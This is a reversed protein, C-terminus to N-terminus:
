NSALLVFGPTSSVLRHQLGSQVIRVTFQTGDALEVQATCNRNATYSGDYTVPTALVGQSDATAELTVQGSGDFHVIGQSAYAASSAYLYKEPIAIVTGSGIVVTAPARFEYSGAYGQPSCDPSPVNAATLRVNLGLAFLLIALTLSFTYFRQM